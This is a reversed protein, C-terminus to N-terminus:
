KKVGFSSPPSEHFGDPSNKGCGEFPGGLDTDLTIDIIKDSKDEAFYNHNNNLSGGPQLKPNSIIM